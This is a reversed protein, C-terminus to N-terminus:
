ASFACRFPGWFSGFAYMVANLETNPAYVRESRQPSNHSAGQAAVSPRRISEEVVGIELPGVVATVAEGGQPNLRRLPTSASECYM